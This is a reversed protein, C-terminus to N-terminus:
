NNKLGLREKEEASLQPINATKLWKIIEEPTYWLKATHDWSATLVRTGDPSFVARWVYDRHKNFDALLNGQLDWLRATTDRSATLVRSGDPSFVASVVWGIHKFDMLVNGRLDWLRATKDASATLVRRGDPSFAASLVYHSHKFNTLVNGQLDWLKATGDWSATLFRQSDPSFVVSYVSYDHKDLSALFHGQGDWLKATKDLSATLIRQGDPSFVGTRVWSTHKDLVALRKGKVDWLRATKDKSATLVRTGDPSFVANNVWDTHGKFNVLIKGQLDWLRATNDYSATLVRTGDPSFVATHVRNKHGKFDALLNGQLDWRKATKDLSSTLVQKGDPSFAVSYVRNQHKNFDVLLNDRLDWLKAGDYSATVVRTNDQSLVASNLGTPNKFAVLGKGTLDWLRVTGDECSTLIRTDDASFVAQLGISPFGTLDALLNGRVDWLKATKDRSATLIRTGDGSFYGTEVSETHGKLVVLSKGKLDWLRATTDWSTTLVRTGDPSFVASSVVATHGKYETLLTGELDWLKATEDRSATLVRTGDPSFVATKVLGDHKYDALCNGQMDWRKATTDASTTLIQTGDPSFVAAYVRDTHGTFEALLNGNNLDWLKATRASVTVVQQGDPSFVADLVASTHVNFDALRTGQLDWLKASKDSSATLIRTGDPSFVASNVEDGHPLRVNYFRREFTSAAAASLVKLVGVPPHPASEWYVAEAIRIAKINDVQVELSAEAILSHVRARQFQEDARNKQIFAYVALLISIIGATIVVRNVIRKNRRRLEEQLEKKRIEELRKNRKDRIIPVLVDHIIEIHEKEGYHVKRLVRRDVLEEVAERLPHNRELYFPTRFGGETLLRSEVFLEVDAPFNEMVSNYFDALIEDRAHTTLLAADEKEKELLQFCLLSLISPEIELQEDQIEEGQEMGESYFMQLIGKIIHEDDIGGPMGIIERGQKGNLHLVRFTVRGISPIQSKLSELHPLYDERLSIVVRVNPRAESYAYYTEAFDSDGEEGAEELLRAKVTEPLQNELLCCLGDLFVESEPHNKGLTFLEEFQDFVLVPTIEKGATGDFHRVRHFYEWLTEGPDFAEAEEEGHMKTIHIHHTEIEKNVTERVQRILGPASPSFDVRLRIPLFGNERAKPFLGANILSTKGIGSKGFVVSLFNHKVLRFLNRKEASRGYFAQSDNEEYSYLGKYPNKKKHEM